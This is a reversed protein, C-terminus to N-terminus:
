LSRKSISVLVDDISQMDPFQTRLGDKTGSYVLHGNHIICLDDAIKQLDTTIHTSFFISNEGDAVYARLIELLEDRAVPDIGSTPEDLILLKAGHSMAVALMLKMKMGRSLEKVKRDSPLSFEKLYQRFLEADWNAYFGRVAKEVESVKWGEAFFTDDFVVGIDQRIRQENELNDMGFMRVTGGNRATMNLMLRITTTKGAGNEGVFGMIHGAPLTFSIDQLSFDRYDKRLGTIDIANQM